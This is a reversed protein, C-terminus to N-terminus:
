ISINIRRSKRRDKGARSELFPDDSKARRDPNIRREVGNPPLNVTAAEEEQTMYVTTGRVEKAYASIATTTKPRSSALQQLRQRTELPGLYLMPEGNLMLVVTLNDASISSDQPFKKRM